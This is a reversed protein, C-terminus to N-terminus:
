RSNLWKIADEANDFEPSINKGARFDEEAEAIIKELYPSMKPAASIHVERNRVLQKLYANILTSLPIGIEQAVKGAAEKVKKDTKILITTQTNMYGIIYWQYLTHGYVDYFSQM